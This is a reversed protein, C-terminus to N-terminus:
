KGKKRAARCPGAKSKPACYTAAVKPPPKRSAEAPCPRVSQAKCLKRLEAQRIFIHGRTLNLNVGDAYFPDQGGRKKLKEWHSFSDRLGKRLDRITPEKRKAM